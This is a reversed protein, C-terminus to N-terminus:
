GEFYIALWNEFGLQTKEELDARGPLAQEAFEIDHESAVAELEERSQKLKGLSENFNKIKPKIAAEAAKLQQQAIITKQIKEIARHREVIRSEIGKITNTFNNLKRLQEDSFECVTEHDAALLELRREQAARDNLLESLYDSKAKRAGELDQELSEIEVKLSEIREELTQEQIQEVM